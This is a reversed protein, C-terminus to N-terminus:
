PLSFLKVATEKERPPSAPSNKENEGYQESFEIHKILAQRRTSLCLKEGVQLPQASCKLEKTALSHFSYFQHMGGLVRRKREEFEKKTPRQIRFVHFFQCQALM